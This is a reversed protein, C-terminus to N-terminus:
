EVKEEGKVRRREGNCEEEAKEGGDRNASAEREEREVV